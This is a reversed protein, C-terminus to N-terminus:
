FNRTNSILYSFLSEIWAWLSFFLSLFICVSKTAVVFLLSFLSSKYIYSPFFSSVLFYCPQHSVKCPAPPLQSQSGQFPRTRPCFPHRQPSTVVKVGRGELAWLPSQCHNLPGLDRTMAAAWIAGLVWSQFTSIFSSLPYCIIGDHSLYQLRQKFFILFLFMGFSFISSSSNAQGLCRPWSWSILHSVLLFSHVQYNGDKSQLWRSFLPAM